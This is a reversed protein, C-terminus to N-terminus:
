IREKKLEKLSNEFFLGMLYRKACEKKDLPALILPKTYGKIKRKTQKTPKKM